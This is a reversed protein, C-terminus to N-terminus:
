RAGRSGTSSCFFRGLLSGPVTCDCIIMFMEYKDQIRNHILDYHPITICNVVITADALLSISNNIFVMLLNGSAPLPRSSSLTTCTPLSLIVYSTAMCISLPLM